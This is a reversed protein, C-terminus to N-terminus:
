NTNPLKHSYDYKQWSKLDRESARSPCKNEKVFSDITNNQGWKTQNKKPRFRRPNIITKYIHYLHLGHQFDQLITFKLICFLLIQHPAFLFTKAVGQQMSLNYRRCDTIYNSLKLWSLNTPVLQAIEGWKNSVWHSWIIFVNLYLM